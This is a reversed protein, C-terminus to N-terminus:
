AAVEDRVAVYPPESTTATGDAALIQGDALAKCDESHTVFLIQHFGGVQQVRRLMAMYKAANEADLAGTTEDRWCTRIPLVNRTNVLLAIASRLVEEIIVREGGSLDALDRAEGARQQDYILVEFVEKHTSGDKGKSAKPLQTVLELTFRGGYCVQLLDNAFATVAPGAADIELTPLGDPAVAKLLVEWDLREQRLYAGRATAEDLAARKELFEARRAELDAVQAQVTALTATSRDWEQRAPDLAAQVEAARAAAGKMADVAEALLHEAILTQDIHETLAKRESVIRQEELALRTNIARTEEDCEAQRQRRESALRDQREQERARAAAIAEAYTREADVVRRQHEAIKREAERLPELLKATEQTVARQQRYSAEEIRYADLDKRRSTLRATVDALATELAVKGAVAQELGPIQQKAAVAAAVFDCPACQDGFPTRTLLAAADRAQRLQGEQVIVADVAKQLRREEADMNSVEILVSERHGANSLLLRELEDIKAAAAEIDDAKALVSQNNAIRAQADKVVADRAGAIKATERALPQSDKTEGDLRLIAADRTAQARRQADLAAETATRLTADLAARAAVKALRDAIAAELKGKVDLHLQVAEQLESLTREADAISRRLTNRREEVTLGDVQLQQARQDLAAALDDGALPALAACTATVLDLEEDIRAIARRCRDAMEEYHKLGLLAAFLERRGKRDLETFSGAKTQAAFVSALLSSYSPLLEDIAREYTSLKGDNLIVARGDPDIRTLTAEAKRHLNDLNLRAKFLGRGELEFATEIFADSRTAYDYLKKERSPFAQYLCGIPAEMITTKGDGNRGSVAVLGSPLDRFSVSVEDAFRLVGKITLRDLKM